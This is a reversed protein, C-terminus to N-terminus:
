VFPEGALSPADRATLWRFVSAGVDALPGNHRGGNGGAFRGLLPAYERTHDTHGSNPDVGHDATLVFLDDPGLRVLPRTGEDPEPAPFRLGRVVAVPLGALKGKVLDAAAAFEGRLAFLEGEARWRLRVLRALERNPTTTPAAGHALRRLVALVGVGLKHAVAGGVLFGRADIGAVLEAGAAFQALAATVVALGHPDALVPTLDKFQVGPEPFDAVERTLSEIVAKVEDSM